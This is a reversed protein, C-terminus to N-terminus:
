GDLKGTLFVKMKLDPLKPALQKAERFPKMYDQIFVLHKQLPSSNVIEQMRKRDEMAARMLEQMAPSPKLWAQLAPSDLLKSIKAFEQSARLSDKAFAQARMLSENVAFPSALPDLASARTPPALRVQRRHELRAPGAQKWKRLWRAVIAEDSAGRWQGKVLVQRMATSARMGTNDLILDAVLDLAVLDEKYDTGSPRGRRKPPSM